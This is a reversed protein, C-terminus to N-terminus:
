NPRQNLLRIVENVEDYIQNLGYQGSSHQDDGVQVFTVNLSNPLVRGRRYSDDIPGAIDPQNNPFIGNTLIYLMPPKTDPYASGELIERLWTSINAKEQSPYFHRDRVLEALKKSSREHYVTTSNWLFALSIGWGPTARGKLVKTIAQVTDAANQRNVGVTNDVLIKFTYGGSLHLHRSPSLLKFSLYKSARGKEMNLRRDKGLPDLVPDLKILVERRKSKPRKEMEVIDRVTIKPAGSDENPIRISPNQTLQPPRALTPPTLPTPLNPPTQVQTAAVVDSKNLFCDNWMHLLDTASKRDKAKPQLM